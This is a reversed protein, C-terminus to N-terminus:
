FISNPKFTTLSIPPWIALAAESPRASTLPCCSGQQSRLYLMSKLCLVRRATRNMRSCIM